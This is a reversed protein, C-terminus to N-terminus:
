RTEHPAPDREFAIVQERLEPYTSRDLESDRLFARRLTM